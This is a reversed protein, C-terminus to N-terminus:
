IVIIDQGNLYRIIIGTSILHDVSFEKKLIKYVWSEMKAPFYFQKKQIQAINNM